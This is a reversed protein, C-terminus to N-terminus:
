LGTISLEPIWVEPCVGHPLIHPINDVYCINRIVELFDGAVTAAEISTFTSNEILWGHFPLSFSGQLANVGAHLSFINDVYVIKNEQTLSRKEGTNSKVHLFHPSLTLKTGLTTHGTPETQFHKATVSSQMLNKLFGQHIFEIEKTATGEEDFSLPSIHECHFPSDVISILQSAIKTTLDEKKLLSKADLINQANFINAFANLLDLFAEGSFVTLYKGNQIPKYNLHKQTKEIAKEACIKPNLSKFDKAVMSHGLQRSKREPEQALPYFYCYASKIKEMQEIMNSNFYF